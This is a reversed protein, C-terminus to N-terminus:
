CQQRGVTDSLALVRQVQVASWSGGRPASRRGTVNPHARAIPQVAQVHGHGATGDDQPGNKNAECELAHDDPRRSRRKPLGPKVTKM